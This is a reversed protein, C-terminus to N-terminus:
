TRPQERIAPDSPDELAFQRGHPLTVPRLAWQEVADIVRNDDEFWEYSYVLTDPRLRRLREDPVLFEAAFQLRAEFQETLRWAPVEELLAAAHAVTWVSLVETPGFQKQHQRIRAAVSGSGVMGIKIASVQEHRALSVRILYVSWRSEMWAAPDVRRPVVTFAAGLDGSM